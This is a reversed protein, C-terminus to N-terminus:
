AKGAIHDSVLGAIQRRESPTLDTLERAPMHVTGKDVFSAYPVEEGGIALEDRSTQRARESTMARLLSGTDVLLRSSGKREVTAPDLPAWTGAGETQFRRRNSANVIDAVQDGIPELDESRTGLAAISAAAQAAGRTEIDIKVPVFCAM